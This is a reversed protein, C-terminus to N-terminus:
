ENARVITFDGDVTGVSVKMLKPPDGLPIEYLGSPVGGKIALSHGRGMSSLKFRRILYTRIRYQDGLGLVELVPEKDWRKSPPLM